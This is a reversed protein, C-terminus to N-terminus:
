QEQLRRRRSRMGSIMAARSSPTKVRVGNIPLGSAMKVSARQRVSLSTCARARSMRIDSILFLQEALAGLVVRSARISGLRIWFHRDAPRLCVPPGLPTDSRRHFNMLESVKDSDRLLTAERVRRLALVYRLRRETLLDM